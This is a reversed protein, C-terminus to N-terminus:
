AIRSARSIAPTGATSTWMESTSLRSSHRRIETKSPRTTPRTAPSPTSPYRLARSIRFRSSPSRPQPARALSQGGRHCLGAEILQDHAIKDAGAVGTGIRDGVSAPEGTEAAGAGEREDAGAPLEEDGVEAVGLAGLGLHRIAELPHDQGPPHEGPERLPQAPADPEVVRLGADGAQALETLLGALAHLEDGRWAQDGLKAPVLVRLLDLRDRGRRLDRVLDVFPEALAAEGPAGLALHCQRGLDAHALEAGLPRRKRRDDRRAGVGRNRM